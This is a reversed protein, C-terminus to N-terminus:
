ALYARCGLGRVPPPDAIAAARGVAHDTVDIAFADALDIAAYRLHPCKRDAFGRQGVTLLMLRVM